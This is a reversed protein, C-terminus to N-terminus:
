LKSKNRVKQIISLSSKEVQIKPFAYIAITIMLNFYYKTGSM